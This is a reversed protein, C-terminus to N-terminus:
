EFACNFCRPFLNDKTKLKEAKQTIRFLCTWKSPSQGATCNHVEKRGDNNQKVSSTFIQENMRCTTQYLEAFGYGNDRQLVIPLCSSSIVKNIRPLLEKLM